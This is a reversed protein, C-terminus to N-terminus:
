RALRAFDDRRTIKGAAESPARAVDDAPDATCDVPPRTRGSANGLECRGLAASWGRALMDAAKDLLRQCSRATAPATAPVTPPTAGYAAHLAGDALAEALCSTCAALDSMDFLTVSACPAPCSSGHGLSSPTLNRGACITDGLGGLRDTLRAAEAAIRADRSSADCSLGRTEMDFCRSWERYYSKLYKGELKAVQKRCKIVTAQDAEVWVHAMAVPASQGRDRWLEFLISGAATTTNADRLFEVYERSATQYYLTVEAAVA